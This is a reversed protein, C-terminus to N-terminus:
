EASPEFSRGDFFSDRALILRGGTSAATLPESVAGEVKSSALPLDHAVGALAARYLDSRFTGRAAAVSAARDLGTRAALQAGLWEAQSRWPFGASGTYFDVFDPVERTSGGANIVFHGQLARELLEAPLGLHRPHSMLETALGHSAPDALWRTARWLARILRQAIDEHGEVWDARVALVKEPARAWIAKGPLLLEGLGADVSRSGWPEGVCFADIEGTELAEALMPPPVTRVNVDQPAHLGLASLWYYILEAHMSFPFPVSVRLGTRRAAVVARGAAWADNFDFGYGMARMDDALARSVGIVNGNVSLVMLGHLLAGAGGLGLASAVPVPSLMHAADLHGFSLKDRLMSWSPSSELTLALGEEEAFGMEAAIILPAADVLPMYGLKLTEPTM